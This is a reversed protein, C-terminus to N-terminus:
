KYGFRDCYSHWVCEGRLFHPPIKKGHNIRYGSDKKMDSFPLRGRLAQVIEIKSVISRKSERLATAMQTIKQM